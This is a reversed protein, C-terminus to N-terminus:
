IHYCLDVSTASIRTASLWYSQWIDVSTDYLDVRTASPRVSFLNSTDCFDVSTDYLDITSDCPDNNTNTQMSSPLVLQILEVTMNSLYHKNKYM